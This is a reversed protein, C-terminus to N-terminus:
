GLTSLIDLLPLMVSLLILGVFLACLLVMTPEIKAITNSLSEQADEQMTQAIAAMVNDSTGSIIGISLMQCQKPPLLESKEMADRVSTGAKISQICTACRKAVGPAYGLLDLALELCTDMDMGSGLGMALASAFHANNFKRAIGRDGFRAYLYKKITSQLKPSFWVVLATVVICLVVIFLVPLIRDLGQGLYLLGASLGSLQSGLSNYVRDFVPIVKVLLVGLVLLMLLLVMAPYTVASRVQRHLQHRQEYYDGLANLADELRGTKEGTRVMRWAYEPFMGSQALADSLPIGRDLEGAIRELQETLPSQADRSILYIGDAPNIGAHLLLALARCIRAIDPHKLIM